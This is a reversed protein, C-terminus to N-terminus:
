RHFNKEKKRGAEVIITNTEKNLRLSIGLVKKKTQLLFGVVIFIYVFFVAGGQIIFLV